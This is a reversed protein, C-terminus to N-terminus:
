RREVPPASPLLHLGGAGVFVRAGPYALLVQPLVDLVRGSFDHAARAGQYEQGLQAHLRAWSMPLAADLRCLRQALWTYLDLALASGTLMALARRDLPVAHQRLDLAFDQSVMLRAGGPAGWAHLRHVAQTNLTQGRFGLQFRAAALDHLGDRLAAYRAAQGDLGLQRLLERPSGGLELELSGGRKVRDCIWALLLRPMVGHPVDREVRGSGEDLYGAQIVMWAVGSHRTFERGSFRRRPLGVQCFVSHLYGIDQGSPPEALAIQSRAM